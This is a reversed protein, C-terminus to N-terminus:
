ADELKEGFGKEIEANTLHQEAWELAEAEDMPQIRSGGCRGGGHPYHAFRTMGGGQGALFYRGSRPTRYLGATWASFDGCHPYNGRSAEGIFVAKDTDYRLGDFIAKM